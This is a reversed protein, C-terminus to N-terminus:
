RELWKHVTIAWLICGALFFLVYEIGDKGARLASWALYMLIFSGIGLAVLCWAM